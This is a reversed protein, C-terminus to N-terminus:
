IENKEVIAQVDIVCALFIGTDTRGVGVNVTCAQDLLVSYLFDLDEIGVKSADWISAIGSTGEESTSKMLEFGLHEM